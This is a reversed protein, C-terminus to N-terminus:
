SPKEIIKIISKITNSLLNNDIIPSNIKLNNNEKSDNALKILWHNFNDWDKKLYLTILSIIIFKAICIIILQFINISFYLGLLIIAITGPFSLKASFSLTNILNM